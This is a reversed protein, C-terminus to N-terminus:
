RSPMGTAQISWTALTELAVVLAGSARQTEYNNDFPDIADEPLTITGSRTTDQLLDRLVNDYEERSLRRLGTEGVGLVDPNVEVNNQQNNYNPATSPPTGSNTLEGKCGALLGLCVLLVAIRRM